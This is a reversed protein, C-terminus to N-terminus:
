VENNIVGGVSNVVDEKLEEIRAAIKLVEESPIQRIVDGSQGDKVTVISRDTTKDFSFTLDRKQAQLFSDIDSVARELLEAREILYTDARAESDQLSFQTKEAQSLTLSTQVRSELDKENTREGASSPQPFNRDKIDRKDNAQAVASKPTDAVVKGIQANQIEM